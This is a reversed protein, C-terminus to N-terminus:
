RVNSTYKERWRWVVRWNAGNFAPLGVGWELCLRQPAPSGSEVQHLTIASHVRPMGIQM